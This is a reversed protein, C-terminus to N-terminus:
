HHVIKQHTKYKIKNTKDKLYKQVQPKLSLQDTIRKLQETKGSQIYSYDPTWFILQSINIKNRYQQICQIRTLDEKFTQYSEVRFSMSM